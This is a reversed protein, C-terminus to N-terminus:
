GAVGHAALLDLARVYALPSGYRTNWYFSEDYERRTLRALTTEPLAEAEARTWAGTRASDRWIERPTVSPLDEVAALFDRALASRALPRLAAAVLALAVLALGPLARAAPRVPAM